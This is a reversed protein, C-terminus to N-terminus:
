PFAVPGARNGSSVLGSKMKGWVFTGTQGFFRVTVGTDTRKIDGQKIRMKNEGWFTKFLLTAQVNRATSRQRAAARTLCRSLNVFVSYRRAGDQDRAFLM